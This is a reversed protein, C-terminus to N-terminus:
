EDEWFRQREIYARMGPRSPSSLKSRMSESWSAESKGKTRERMYRRTTEDYSALAEEYGSGDYSEQHLVAEVPLRPRLLSSAASADEPDPYGICMGFVPMVHAPLKLLESVEDIRNRIGGIYVIGLGASEAAVAANQAALSVDVLAIVLNETMGIYAKSQGVAANLRHLDACWVLFLPCDRVYAQNGALEALKAKRAPDSVRIVSYAQMNSSTSAMQGARVIELLLADDVPKDTFKRVSRHKQLLRIVENM